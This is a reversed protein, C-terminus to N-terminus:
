RGSSGGYRSDGGYSGSRSSSPRSYTRRGSESSSRGYDSSGRVYPVSGQPLGNRNETNGASPSSSPVNNPSPSGVGNAAPPQNGQNEPTSVPPQPSGPPVGPVGGGRNQEAEQAEKAARQDEEDKLSILVEDITALGDGNIDLFRFEAAVERTWVGGRGDGYEQMTLQGDLDKDYAFFWDLAPNARAGAPLHDYVTSQKPATLVTLAPQNQSATASPRATTPTIAAKEKLGFELVPTETPKQEGFPPVLPEIVPAASSRSTSGPETRSTSSNSSSSSSTSSNSPSASYSAAARRELDGLNIPRNPDVGLRSTIANVFGRQRDSIENPELVGNRNTDM